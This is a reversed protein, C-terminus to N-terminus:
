WHLTVLSTRLISTTLRRYIYYYAILWATSLLGICRPYGMPTSLATIDAGKALLLEVSLANKRELALILASKGCSDAANVNAGLEILLELPETQDARACLLLPTTGDISKANVDLGKSALISVLSRFGHQAAIHLPSYGYIDVMSVKANRGILCAAIDQKDSSIAHSVASRGESDM